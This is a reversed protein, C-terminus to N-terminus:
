ILKNLIDKLLHGEQTRFQLNFSQDNAEEKKRGLSKAEVM